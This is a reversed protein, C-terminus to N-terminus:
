SSPLALPLELLSVTKKGGDTDQQGVERFGISHHFQLSATTADAAREGRLAAGPVHRHVAPGTRRLLRPRHRLPPLRPARRHPRPLRLRDYSRSFWGYNLSAYPQGPGIVWCFGAFAGDVEAVLASRPSRRGVAHVEAADLENLEPVNANNLAAGCPARRPAAFRIPDSVHRSLSAAVALRSTVAQEPM